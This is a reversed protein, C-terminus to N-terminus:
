GGAERRQPLPIAQDRNREVCVRAAPHPGPSGRCVYFSMVAELCSSLPRPFSPLLARPGMLGECCRGGGQGKPM